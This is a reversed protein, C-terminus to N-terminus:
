GYITGGNENKKFVSPRAEVDRQKLTFEETVRNVTLDVLIISICDSIVVEEFKLKAEEFEEKDATVISIKIGRKSPSDLYASGFIWSLKQVLTYRVGDHVDFAWQHLGDAAVADTTFAFPTLYRFQSLNVIDLDRHLQVSYGANILENQIIGRCTSALLDGDMSHFAKEVARAIKEYDFEITGYPRRISFSYTSDTKKSREAKPKVYPKSMDLPKVLGEDVMAVPALGHVALLDQLTVGSEPDANKAIAAIVGDSVPNIFKANIVRSITSPALGCAEAFETISRNKGVAKQTLMGLVEADPYRVRVYGPFVLEKKKRPM